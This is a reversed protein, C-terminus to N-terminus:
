RDMESVGSGPVGRLRRLPPASCSERTPRSGAGGGLSFRAIKAARGGESSSKRQHCRRCLARLNSRRDTGGHAKAIIHDVDTAPEGCLRCTPEEELVVRRIKVWESGYGREAPSATLSWGSVQHKSCRSGTRTLRPCGPELCPVPQRDPM